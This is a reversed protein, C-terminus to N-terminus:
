RITLEGCQRGGDRLQARDSAVDVLDRADRVQRTADFSEARLIQEGQKARQFTQAIV